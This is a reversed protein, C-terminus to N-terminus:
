GTGMSISILCSLIQLSRKAEEPNQSVLVLSSQGLEDSKVDNTTFEEQASNVAELCTNCITRHVGVYEMTVVPSSGRDRYCNYGVSLFPLTFVFCLFRSLASIVLGAQVTDELLDDTWLLNLAMNPRSDPVFDAKNRPYQIM